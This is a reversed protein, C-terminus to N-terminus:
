NKISRSYTSTLMSILDSKGFWCFCSFFQSEKRILTQIIITISLFRRMYFEIQCFDMIAFQFTSYILYTHNQFLILLDSDGEHHHRGIGLKGLRGQSSTSTGTPTSTCKPFPFNLPFLHYQLRLSGCHHKHCLSPVLM